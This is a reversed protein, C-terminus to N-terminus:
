ANGLVDGIGQAVKLYIQIFRLLAWDRSSWFIFAKKKKKWIGSARMTQQIMSAMYEFSYKIAAM